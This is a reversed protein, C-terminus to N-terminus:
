GANTQTSNMKRREVIDVFEVVFGCDTQSVGDQSCEDPTTNNAVRVTYYSNDTLVEKESGIEYAIGQGNRVVEAIKDWIDEAFTGPNLGPAFNIVIIRIEYLEYDM